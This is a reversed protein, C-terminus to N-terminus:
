TKEYNREGNCFYIRRIIRQHNKKHQESKFQNDNHIYKNVSELFLKIQSIEYNTGYKGIRHKLWTPISKSKM